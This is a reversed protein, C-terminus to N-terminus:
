FATLTVTKNANKVKYWSSNYYTFLIGAGYNASAASYVMSSRIENRGSPIFSFVYTGYGSIGTLITSLESATPVEAAPYYTFLTPVKSKTIIEEYSWGSPTKIAQIIQSYGVGQIVASAYNSSSASMDIFYSVGTVFPFFNATCAFRFLKKNNQLSNDTIMRNMWYDLGSQTSIDGIEIYTRVDQMENDLALKQWDTHWENVTFHRIWAGGETSKAIVYGYTKGSKFVSVTGYRFPLYDSKTASVQYDGPPLTLIFTDSTVTAASLELNKERLKSSLAVQSIASKSM